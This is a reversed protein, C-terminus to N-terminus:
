CLTTLGSENIVEFSIVMLLRRVKMACEAAAEVV